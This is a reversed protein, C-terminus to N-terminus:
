RQQQPQGPSNIQDIRRSNDMGPIAKENTSNSGCGAASIVTMTLVALFLLRGRM